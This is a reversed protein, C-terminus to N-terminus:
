SMRFQCNGNQTIYRVWPLAQYGTSEFIKLYRVSIKSMTFFPIEFQIEAPKRFWYDTVAENTSTTPRNMTASLIQEKQGPMHKLSWVFVSDEPKYKVTGSSCKFSPSSANVPAPIVVDVKTAIKRPRFSSKLKIFYSVKSQSPDLYSPGLTVELWFPLLTEDVVDGPDDNPVTYTMLDFEGDPPIFSITRDAEFKNLRVCQHFRINHLEVTAAMERGGVGGTGMGVVSQGDVTKSEVMKDNLGLKLEPMGTLCCKMKLSGIIESRLIKNSASVLCDIREVVDLFVENKKHRIGEPRWSVPSTLPTNAKGGSSSLFKKLVKPETIQPFGNDIVEDLLEYVSVFNDRLSEEDFRHLHQTFLECLRRLFVLTTAVNTHVRSVAVAYVDNQKMWCYTIGNDSFIPAVDKASEDIFLDYFRGPVDQLKVEGRYDRVIIPQGKNDLLLVGSAM